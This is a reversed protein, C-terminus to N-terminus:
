VLKGPPELVGGNLGQATQEHAEALPQEISGRRAAVVPVGVILGSLDNDLIFGRYFLLHHLLAREDGNGASWYLGVTDAQIVHNLVVHVRLALSLGDKYRAGDCDVATASYGQLRLVDGPYDELM